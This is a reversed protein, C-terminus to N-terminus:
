LGFLEALAVDIRDMTDDGVANGTWRSIETPHFASQVEPIAVLVDAPWWTPRPIALDGELPDFERLEDIPVFLQYREANSYAPETVIIGQGFGIERQMEPALSVICGRWSGAAPGTGVSSGAGLGLAHRLARRLAPMEDVIRGAMHRFDDSSAPILRSPYLYTPRSFGTLGRRGYATAAPDLLVNAAGHEVETRQTSAYAMIGVDDAEACATLLVHRRGKPDGGVRAEPPLFWVEGPYRV